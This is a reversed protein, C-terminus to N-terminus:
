KFSISALPSIYDRLAKIPVVVPAFTRTKLPIEEVGKLSPLASDGLTPLV